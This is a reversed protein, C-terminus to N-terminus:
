RRRHPDLCRAVGAEFRARGGPARMPAPLLKGRPPLPPAGCRKAAARFARTGTVDRPIFFGHASREVGRIDQRRMCEATKALRERLRGDFAPPPPLALRRAGSERSKTGGGEDGGKGFAPVAIAVLGLALVAAAMPRGNGLMRRRM